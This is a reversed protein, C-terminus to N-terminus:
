AGTGKAKVYYPILVYQDLANSGTHCRLDVFEKEVYEWLGKLTMDVRIEPFDNTFTNYSM